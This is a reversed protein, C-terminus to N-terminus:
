RRCSSIQNWDTAKGKELTGNVPVLCYVAKGTSIQSEDTSNYADNTQSQQPTIKWQKRARVTISM